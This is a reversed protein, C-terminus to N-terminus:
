RGRERAQPEHLVQDLEALMQTTNHFQLACMGVARAAEVNSLCDDVFVVECPKVELREATLRYIRPDPKAIGEEASLVILDVLGGLQYRRSRTLMTRTGPWANSLLATRYHPRLDHLAQVLMGDLRDQAWFDHKLERVQSDNLRFPALISHWAEAVTVEGRAARPCMDSQFVAQALEGEGMGLRMEWKRQLSRDDTRILVGGIDFIVARVTM